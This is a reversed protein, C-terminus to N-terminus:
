NEEANDKGEKIQNGDADMYRSYAAYVVGDRNTPPPEPNFGAAQRIVNIARLMVAAANSTRDYVVVSSKNMGAQVVMESQIMTTLEESPRKTNGLWEQFERNTTFRNWGNLVVVVPTDPAYKETMTRIHRFAPMDLISARCPIVIVDAMEMEHPLEDALYGPTDVIAVVADDQKQAGHASGRQPDLNYFSASDGTREFSYLLEDCLTTKGVGGKTAAVLITKM